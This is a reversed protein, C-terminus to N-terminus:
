RAYATESVTVQGSGTITLRKEGQANGVALTAPPAAAVCGPCGTLPTIRGVTSIELDRAPGFTIQRPLFVVPGDSNPLTAPDQDAAPYPYATTDCRNAANDVGANGTVEVVRMQSAAPCNFLVRLRVNRSVAQHRANRVTTAVMQVATNMESQRLAGSISPVAIALMVMALASVIMIEVLSFGGESTRM